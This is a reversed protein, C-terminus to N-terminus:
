SGPADDPLDKRPLDHVAPGQVVSGDAAFRSGHCPCDWSGEARNWAVHCGMHSCVPSVSTLTGREDKSVAYAEAGLRVVTGDGAALDGVADAGPLGLRDSVFHRAVDLNESAFSSASQAPTLRNADFTAAWPHERGRILEALLMAAATGGTIGWKRFGTAAWLGTSRRSLAGVYPLKDVATYDQASWRYEAAVVAFHEHAWDLLAQWHRSEDEDAGPKHSEGSVILLRHGDRVYSRLSRTPSEATISMSEPLPGDTSVAIAYSRTPHAKAFFFGRDLVPLHTAVVVHPAEARGEATAVRCPQGDRVDVVAAHEFVVSGDGDVEDALALVYDRPHFQAQADFIVAAQVPFPLDTADSFRAPLGLRAATEAEAHIHEVQDDARTYTVAPRREFACDIAFQEVWTAIHALAAENAQGYIRATDDDFRSALDAYALQHLSTIKATTHGTVGQCVRGRELVAVRLGAQKLLLAVTIGTIGAGIVVADFRQHGELRPREPGASTAMWLSPSAGSTTDM